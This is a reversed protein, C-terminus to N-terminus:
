PQQSQEIPKEALDIIADGVQNALKTLDDGTNAQGLRKLANRLQTSQERKGEEHLREVESRVIKAFQMVDQFTNILEKQVKKRKSRPLDVFQQESRMFVQFAKDDPTTRHLKMFRELSTSKKGDRWVDLVNMMPTTEAKSQEREDNPTSSSCAPWACMCIMSALLMVRNM